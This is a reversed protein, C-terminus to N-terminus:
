YQIELGLRYVRPISYATPDHYPGTPDGTTEFKVIGDRGGTIFEVNKWNFVNRVEALFAIDVTAVNVSKRFRLDVNKTWPLRGDNRLAFLPFVDRTNRTYPLGSQVRFVINLEAQGIWEDVLGESRIQLSGNFRHRVDWDLPDLRRPVIENNGKFVSSSRGNAFAYAYNIMGGIPRIGLTEFTVEIGRVNAYDMNEYAQYTDPSGPIVFDTATVLNTIDKFYGSLGMRLFDSFLHDWGIEYSVTKEPLLRPNGLDVNTTYRFNLMVNEYLYRFDPRQFFHGYYFHIKDRETIPHSIGIRPSIQWHTPVADANTLGTGDKHLPMTTLDAPYLVNSGLGNPDYYDFRIGANVIFGNRVEIKDQAYISYEYLDESWIDFRQNLVSEFTVKQIDGKSYNLEGGVKLLNWNNFQNSYDVRLSSTRSLQEFWWGEDGTYYWYDETFLRDRYGTTPSGNQQWLLEENVSGNRNRDAVDRVTEHFHNYFQSIKVDFFSSNNLTQTWALGINYSDNVPVSIHKQMGADYLDRVQTYATTDTGNIFLGGQAQTTPAPFNQPNSVFHYRELTKIGSETVIRQFLDTQYGESLPGFKSYRHYYDNSTSWSRLGSLTIRTDASVLNLKSQYSERFFSEHALFGKTQLGTETSGTLSIRGLPTEFSPTTAFFEYDRWDPQGTAYDNPKYAIKSWPFDSTRVRFKGTFRSGADRTVTNVVGSQANGYEAEFGGTSVQVESVSYEPINTAFGGTYGTYGNVASKVQMGDVLFLAENFRGGRFHSGVVGAQLQVVERFDDVPLATIMDGDVTHKTSTLDAQIAPRSATVLVDGLQVASPNLRFDITTTMDVTVKVDSVSEATYGIISARVVYTGVPVNLIFFNGDVDSIAGYSTGVIQVNVSPLPEKTSSDTIRGAIKGTIGAFATQSALLLVLILRKM